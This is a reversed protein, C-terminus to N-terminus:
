VVSSHRLGDKPVIVTHEDVGFLQVEPGCLSHERVGSNRQGLGVVDLQKENLAASCKMQRRLPAHRSGIDLTESILAYSGTDFQESPSMLFGDSDRQTLDYVMGTVGGALLGLSILALISGAIIAVIRGATWKRTPAAEAVAPEAVAAPEFLRPPPVSMDGSTYALATM